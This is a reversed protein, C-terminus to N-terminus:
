KLIHCYVIMRRRGILTAGTGDPLGLWMELERKIRGDFMKEGRLHPFDVVQTSKGM